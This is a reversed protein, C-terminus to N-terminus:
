IILWAALATVVGAFLFPLFPYQGFKKRKILTFLALFVFALAIAVTMLPTPFEPAGFYFPYFLSYGAVAYVDGSAFAKLLYLAFAIATPILALFLFQTGHEFLFVLAGAGVFAYLLASDIAKEKADQLAATFGFGLGLLLALPNM